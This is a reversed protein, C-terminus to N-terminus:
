KDNNKIMNRLYDLSLKVNFYLRDINKENPQKFELLDCDGILAQSKLELNKDDLIQYEDSVRTVVYPTNLSLGDGSHYITEILFVFKFLCNKMHISDKLKNYVLALHYYYELNTPDKELLKEGTLVANEFDKKKYYNLLDQEGKVDGMPNYENTFVNGFYVYKLEEKTISTDNDIFKKLIKPYYFESTSDTTKNRIDDFDINSIKQCYINDSVIFLIFLIFIFNVRM